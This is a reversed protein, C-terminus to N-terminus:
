LTLAFVESGIRSGLRLVLGQIKSLTQRLLKHANPTTGRRSSTNDFTTYSFIIM